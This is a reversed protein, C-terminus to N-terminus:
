NISSSLVFASKNINSHKIKLMAKSKRPTTLERHFSGDIQAGTRKCVKMLSRLMNSM